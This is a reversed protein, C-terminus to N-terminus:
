ASRLEPIAGSRIEAPSYNVGELIGKMKTIYEELQSKPDEGFLWAVTEGVKSVALEVAVNEM